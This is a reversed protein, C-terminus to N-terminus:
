KNGRLIKIETLVETLTETNKQITKTAMIYMLLGFLVGTFNPVLKLLYEEVVM